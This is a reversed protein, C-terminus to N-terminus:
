WQVCTLTAALRMWIRVLASRGRGSLHFPRASTSFRYRCLHTLSDPRFVLIRPLTLPLSTVRASAPQSSFIITATGPLM